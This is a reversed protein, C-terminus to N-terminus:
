RTKPNDAEQNEGKTAETSSASNPAQSAGSEYLYLRLIKEGM